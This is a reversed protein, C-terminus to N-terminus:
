VYVVGIGYGDQHPDGILEDTRHRQRLERWFRPVDGSVSSGPTERSTAYDEHVDHLGVVGGPRVLPAYLEWDRRVGDYSHDGDIFLVDLPRCSLAARVHELTEPAHSDGRVSVVQQSARALRSRAAALYAPVDLDVSVIVADDAAGRTLLYLTGGASTGVECVARPALAAVRELFPIIEDLRQSAAVEGVAFRLDALGHDRVLLVAGNPSPVVLDRPPRPDRGARAYRRQQRLLFWYLWAAATLNPARQALHRKLAAIV